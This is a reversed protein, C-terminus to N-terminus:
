EWCGMEKMIDSIIEIECQVTNGYTLDTGDCRSFDALVSQEQLKEIIKDGLDHAGKNYAKKTIRFSDTVEAVTGIKRYALLEKLFFAITEHEYKTYKRVYDGNTMKNEYYICEEITM